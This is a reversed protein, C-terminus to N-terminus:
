SHESGCRPRSRPGVGEAGVYQVFSTKPRAPDGKRRVPKSGLMPLRPVCESDGVGVGGTRAQQQEAKTAAGRGCRASAGGKGVYTVSNHVLVEGVSDDLEIIAHRIVWPLCTKLDPKWIHRYRM